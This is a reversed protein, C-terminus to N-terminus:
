RRGFDFPRERVRDVLWRLSYNTLTSTSAAFILAKVETRSIKVGGGSILMSESKEIERMTAVAFLVPLVCFLRVRVAMLPLHEIYRLSREIDDHAIRFLPELAARNAARRDDHLIHAHSSGHLALLEAPVYVSNEHEADWAIDKLINVSQLAEGFPECHELLLGYARRDIANSHQHWLDTLLHGVTGAVFYCYEHFESVTSIRIGAPHELVFRRMGRVMEEIWRRLIARTPADLGRYLAFVEGTAAVLDVYTDNTTLEHITEGFADARAADDFCTLFRDLLEAKRQPALALDDEVTDAIRCLLYGLRVPLELRAPLLKIGLAFTRSVLPLISRTHRDIDIISSTPNELLIVRQIVSGFSV